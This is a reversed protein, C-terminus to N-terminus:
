QSPQEELLVQSLPGGEDLRQHRHCPLKAVGSDADYDASLTFQSKNAQIRVSQQDMQLVSMCEM